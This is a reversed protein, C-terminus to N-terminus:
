KINLLGSFEVKSNIRVEYPYSKYEFDDFKFNFEYWCICDCPDNWIEDLYMKIIGDEFVTNAEYFICCTTEFGVFIILTNGQIYYYVTDSRETEISSGSKIFESPLLGDACGSRIIEDLSISDKNETNEEYCGQVLLLGLIMTLLLLNKM